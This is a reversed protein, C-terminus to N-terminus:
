ENDGYGLLRSLEAITIHNVYMKNPDKSEIKAIKADKFAPPVGLFVRLKRYATKGRPRNYPLMGRIIRKVLMDSRRPWYPSHEPNEKEMLRLRTKYKALIVKKNGSIVAKEANIVAVNKGSLLNKAVVSSLRGLIKNEADFVEFENLNIEAM